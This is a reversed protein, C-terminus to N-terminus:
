KYPGIEWVPFGMPDSDPNLLEVANLINVTQERCEADSIVSQMNGNCVAVGNKFACGGM